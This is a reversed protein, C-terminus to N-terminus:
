RRRHWGRNPHWWGWGITVDYNWFYGPQPAPYAPAVYRVGAPLYLGPVPAVVCGALVGALLIVTVVRM